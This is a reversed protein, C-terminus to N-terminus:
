TWPSHGLGDASEPSFPRDQPPGGLMAVDGGAPRALGTLLRLLTTKGAGHSEKAWWRRLITLPGPVRSGATRPRATAPAPTTRAARRIGMADPHGQSRSTGCDGVSVSVPVCVFAM